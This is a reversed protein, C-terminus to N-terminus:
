IMVVNLEDLIWYIDYSFQSNLNKYHLYQKINEPSTGKSM